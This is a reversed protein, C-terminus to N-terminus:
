LERALRALASRVGQDREAAQGDTWRWQVGAQIEFTPQLHDRVADVEVLVAAVGKVLPEQLVRAHGLATVALDAAMLAVAVQPRQRLRRLSGRREALGLLLRTEDARHVASVPIAHPEEGVTCLVAVTDSPWNPLM